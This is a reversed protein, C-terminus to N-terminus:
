DPARATPATPRRTCHGPAPQSRLAGHRQRHPPRFSEAAEFLSATAATFHSGFVLATTTGHAALARVFRRAVERAYDLDAMRGRRPAYLAALWDLLGYGLGGLVRVQPFHVHTDVFGPLLFEAAFIASRPEPIAGRARQSTIAAHRSAAPDRILLGGDEHFELSGSERFPNRPM